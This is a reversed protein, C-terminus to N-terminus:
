CCHKLSHFACALDVLAHLLHRFGLPTHLRTRRRIVVLNEPWTSRHVFLGDLRRTYWSSLRSTLVRLRRTLSKGFSVAARPPVHSAKLQGSKQTKRTPPRPARRHSRNRCASAQHACIQYPSVRIAQAQPDLCLLSGHRSRSATSDLDLLCTHTVESPPTCTLIKKNALSTQKIDLVFNPESVMNFILM